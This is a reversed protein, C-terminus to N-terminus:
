WISLEMEHNTRTSLVTQKAQKSFRIEDFFHNEVIATVTPRENANLTAFYRIMTEIDRDISRPFTLKDQHIQRVIEHDNNGDFPFKGTAM